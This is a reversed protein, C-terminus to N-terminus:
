EHSDNIGGTSLSHIYSIADSFGNEKAYLDIFPSWLPKIVWPLYLLGYIGIDENDVRPKTCIVSVSIIIAYPLGSAFNLFPIWYWPRNDTKM